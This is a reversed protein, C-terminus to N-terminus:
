SLLRAGVRTGQVGMLWHRLLAARLRCPLFSFAIVICDRDALAVSVSLSVVITSHSIVSSLSCACSTLYALVPADGPWRSLLPFLNLVTKKCPLGQPQTRFPPYSNAQCLLCSFANSAAFLHPVFVPSVNHFASYCDGFIGM